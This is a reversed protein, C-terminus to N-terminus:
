GSILSPTRGPMPPECRSVRAMPLALAISRIRVPRVMSAASASRLPRTDRTTGASSKSVSALATAVVIECIDRDADRIALSATLRANSDVSASPRSYSRRSNWEVKAVSSWDSPIAANM